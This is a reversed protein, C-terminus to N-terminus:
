GTPPFIWGTSAPSFAAPRPKRISSTREMRGTSVLLTDLKEGECYVTLTQAKKDLLLGYDGQPQVIKLKEAPVWGEIYEGEEHNWAGIRAWGDQLEYVSLAQSQGHLTGLVPSSADAQEFVQQHEAFPIDVVTAPQRMKRWIEADSDGRAPMIDGTVSLPVPDPSREEVFLPFVSRYAPNAPTYVEVQYTGPEPLSKGALAALSLKLIKGGSVDKRWAYAPESEGPRRLDVALAGKLVVKAEIFWDEAADLYLHDASPLGFILAQASYDVYANFTHEWVRGSAGALVSVVQYYKTKLREENYGLGDWTLVNEGPSVHLTLSRYVTNEDRFTLTLDGEEPAQIRFTNEAYSIIKRDASVSFGEGAAPSLIVALLLLLVTFLARRSPRIM